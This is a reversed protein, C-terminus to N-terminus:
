IQFKHKVNSANCFICLAVVVVVEVVVVVFAAVVVLCLDRLYLKNNQAKDKLRLWPADQHTQRQTQGGKGGRKKKCQLVKERGGV